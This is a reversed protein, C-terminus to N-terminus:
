GREICSVQSDDNVHISFYRCVIIVYMLAHLEIDRYKFLFMYLLDLCALTTYTFQWYTPWNCILVIRIYFM